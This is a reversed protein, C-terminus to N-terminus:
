SEPTLTPTKPTKKPSLTLSSKRAGSTLDVGLIRAVDAPVTPLLGPERGMECSCASIMFMGHWLM